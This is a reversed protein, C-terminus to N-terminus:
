AWKNNIIVNFISEPNDVTYFAPYYNGTEKWDPYTWAYSMAENFSIYNKNSISNNKPRWFICTPVDLYHSVIGIGSAYAITFKSNKCIAFTQNIEYKGIKSIWFNKNKIKQLIHKQYYNNDYSAGIVLIKLGFKEHIYDGLTVWDNPKWLADKNFGNGGVINGQEPGLYFICYEGIENKLDNAVKIEKPKFNYHNRVVNWNIDFQPLWTELRDGRELTKNSILIYDINKLNKYINKGHNIYRLLGNKDSPSGKLLVPGKKDSMPMPYVEVSNVFDFRKIFDFARIQKSQIWENKNNLGAVKIKINLEQQNYHKAISQAKFLGWVSDGIGQAVLFNM